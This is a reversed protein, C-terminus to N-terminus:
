LPKRPPETSLFGGALSVPSGLETGPNPLDGPTPFPLGSCYEQRSFGMFQPAQYLGHSQLSDSEVSNRLVPM